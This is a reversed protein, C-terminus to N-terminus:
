RHNLAILPREFVKNADHIDFAALLEIFELQQFFFPPDLTAFNSKLEGPYFEVPHQTLQTKPRISDLQM